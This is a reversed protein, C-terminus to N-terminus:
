ASTSRSSKAPPVPVPAASAALDADNDGEIAVEIFVDDNTNNIDAQQASTLPTPKAVLRLKDATGPPGFFDPRGLDALRKRLQAFEARTVWSIELFENGPAMTDPRM